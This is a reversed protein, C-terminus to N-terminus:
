PNADTQPCAHIIFVVNYVFKLIDFLESLFIWTIGGSM